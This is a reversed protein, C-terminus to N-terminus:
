TAHLHRVGDKKYLHLLLNLLLQVPLHPHVAGGLETVSATQGEQFGGDPLHEPDAGHGRQEDGM